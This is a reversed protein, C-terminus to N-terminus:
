RAVGEEVPYCGWQGHRETDEEVLRHGVLSGVLLDWEVNMEVNELVDDIKETPNPYVPVRTDACV